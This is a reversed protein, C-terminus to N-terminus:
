SPEDPTTLIRVAVQENARSYAIYEYTLGTREVHEAWAQFEGSEWNQHNFYEDFVVISGPRLRPGVAELVTVTANYLDCDVHLLDVQGPHEQLFGPLTDEFLGVVLEVGDIEPLEEVSFMGEPFGPRWAEPLGSFVDFGYVVEERMEAVIRVTRGSAVGFELALGGTPAAEVAHRLTEHPSPLAKAHLFHAGVYEASSEVAARDAAAHLDRRQRTEFEVVRRQLAATQETLKAVEGRLGRAIDLSERVEAAQAENAELVARILRDRASRKM